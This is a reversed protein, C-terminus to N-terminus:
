KTADTVTDEDGKPDTSRSCMFRARGLARDLGRFARGSRGGLVQEHEGDQNSIFYGTKQETERGEKKDAWVPLVVALLIFILVGLAVYKKM